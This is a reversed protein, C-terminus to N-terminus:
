KSRELEEIAAKEASLISMGHVFSATQDYLGGTDPLVGNQYAGWARLLAASSRTV